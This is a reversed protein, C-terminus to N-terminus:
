PGVSLLNRPPNSGELRVTKFARYFRSIVKYFPDRIPYVGRM